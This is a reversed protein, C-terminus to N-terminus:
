EFGMVRRARKQAELALPSNPALSAARSYSQAAEEKQGLKTHADGLAMFTEPDGPDLKAGNNLYDVAEKNKGQALYVRGILQYSKGYDPAVETARTLSTLAEEYRGMELYTLGINSLPLQKKQYTLDKLCTNFEELAKDYDRQALYVLGLNNHVDTRKSNLKLAKQYSEIALSYEKMGYYSLGLFNEVDASKPDLEKAKMLEPLAKQYEGEMLLAAALNIQAKAQDNTSAGGSRRSTGSKPTPSSDGDSGFFPVVCGSLGTTLALVLGASLIKKIKM